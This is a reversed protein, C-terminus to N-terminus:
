RAVATRTLLETTVEVVKTVISIHGLGPFIRLTAGPVISATHHANAVPTDTKM